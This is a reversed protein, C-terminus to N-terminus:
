RFSVFQFAFDSTLQGPENTFAVTIPVYHSTVTIGYFQGSGHNVYTHTTQANGLGSLPTATSATGDGWAIDFPTAVREQPDLINLEVNGNSDVDIVWVQLSPKYSFYGTIDIIVHASGGASATGLVPSLATLLNSGLKAPCGACAALTFETALAPTGAVFNV